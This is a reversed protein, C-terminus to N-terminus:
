KKENEIKISKIADIMTKVIKRLDEEKITYAVISYILKGFPRIWVANKVCYDQIEQAYCDDKLEIVGIAGINRVSKVLNLEKAFELEQTFITEINKVNEQWSTDRLLDISANAVSCALPNAMFTPGHMLVGIDSNSILDSVNKSTIMAAMTMYGGTLGKGVTMIDPKIEAWECAFMRGTHGFGTAIEDAILLIDYKSCLERAKKLYNPNYIRMGGAGQVIPELIFAAIEENHKKLIKELEIISDSCDSQFGLEPAKTFIHESLYTGYISHMSNNPDCVSMAGLTDGHYANELALFKYKKLGKAKQYLIATKLAVEVSVSGSDCLFVSNLGTLDILKKSLISSQEHALGGFMIHPMIDVQKKLAENLKPHNYGHIASWWSSMADILEKGDELFISTKNTSKVPLIKTKSPLANYPHWVHAKDIDLWNM